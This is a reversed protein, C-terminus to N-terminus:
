LTIQCNLSTPENLHPERKAQRLQRTEGLESDNLLKKKNDIIM